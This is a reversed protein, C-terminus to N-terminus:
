ALMIQNVNVIGITTKLLYQLAYDLDFLKLDVDFEFAVHYKSVM